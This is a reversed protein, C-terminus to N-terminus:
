GPEHGAPSTQAQAVRRAATVRWVSGLALIIGGLLIFIMGLLTTLLAAGLPILPDQLMAQSQRVVARAERAIEVLAAVRGEFEVMDAHFSEAAQSLDGTAEQLKMLIPPEYRLVDVLNRMALVVAGMEEEPIVLGTVGTQLQELSAATAQLLAATANRTNGAARMSEPTLETVQASEQILNTSSRLLDAQLTVLRLIEEATELSRSAHDLAIRVRPMVVLFGAAVTGLGILM